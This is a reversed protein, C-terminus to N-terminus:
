LNIKIRYTVMGRIHGVDLIIKNERDGSSKVRGPSLRDSLPSVLCDELAANREVKSQCHAAVTNSKIQKGHRLFFRM